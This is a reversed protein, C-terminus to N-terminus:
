WFTCSRPHGILLRGRNTTCQLGPPPQTTNDITRLRSKQQNLLQQKHGVGVETILYTVFWEVTRRHWTSTGQDAFAKFVHGVASAHDNGFMADIPDGLHKSLDKDLYNVGAM